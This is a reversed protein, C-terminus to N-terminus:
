VDNTQERVGNLFGTQGAAALAVSLLFDRPMRM